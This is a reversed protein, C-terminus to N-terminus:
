RRLVERVRPPRYVAVDDDDRQVVERTAVLAEPLQLLARLVEIAHDVVHPLADVLVEAVGLRAEVSAGLDVLELEVELDVELVACDERLQLLSGWVGDGSGSLWWFASSWPRFALSVIRWIM